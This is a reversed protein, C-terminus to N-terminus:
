RKRIKVKFSAGNESYVKSPMIPLTDRKVRTKDNKQVLYANQSLKVKGRIKRRKRPKPM